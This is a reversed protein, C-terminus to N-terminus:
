PKRELGAQKWISRLTKPDLDMSPKGAVTVKGPKWPHLFQRHSGRCTAEYWGDTRIIRLVERVNM